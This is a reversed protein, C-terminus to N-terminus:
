AFKNSEDWTKHRLCQMETYKPSFWAFGQSETFYFKTAFIVGVGVGHHGPMLICYKGFVKIQSPACFTLTQNLCLFNTTFLANEWGCAKLNQASQIPSQGLDKSYNFNRVNDSCSDLNIRFVKIECYM